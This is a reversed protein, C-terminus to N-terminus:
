RITDEHKVDKADTLNLSTSEELKYKNLLIEYTLPRPLSDEKPLLISVSMHKIETKIQEANFGEAELCKKRYEILAYMTRPSVKFIYPNEILTQIIDNEKAIKLQMTLKEQSQRLPLVSKKFMLNTNKVGIGPYSDLINCNNKIKINLSNKLIDEFGYIMNLVDNETIIYKENEELEERSLKINRKIMFEKLEQYKRKLAEESYQFVEKNKQKKLFREFVIKRKTSKDLNRFEQKSKIEEERENSADEKKTEMQELLDTRGEQEAIRKLITHASKRTVNNNGLITNLLKSVQTASIEESMYAELLLLIQEKKEDSFTLEKKNGRVKNSKKFQEYKEKEDIDEFIKELKTDLWDRSRGIKKAETRLSIKSNSVGQSTLIRVKLDELFEIEETTLPKSIGM